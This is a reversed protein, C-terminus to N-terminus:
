CGARRNTCDAAQNHLQGHIHVLVAGPVTMAQRSLCTDGQMLTCAACFSRGLQHPTRERSQVSIYLSAACMVPYELIGQPDENLTFEQTPSVDDVTGFDLGDKNVFRCLLM